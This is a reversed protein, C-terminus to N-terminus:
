AAAGVNFGGSRVDEIMKATADKNDDYALVDTMNLIVYENGDEEFRRGRDQLAEWYVTKGQFKSYYNHIKEAKEEDVLSNDFAFSHFGFYIIDEKSPVETVIGSDRGSSNSAGMFGSQSVQVKIKDNTPHLAM